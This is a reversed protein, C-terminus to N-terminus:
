LMFSSAQFKPYIYFLFLVIWTTFVFADKNECICITPKRMHLSLHLAIISFSVPYFMKGRELITTGSDSEGLVFDAVVVDM